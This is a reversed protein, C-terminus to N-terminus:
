ISSWNGKYGLATLIFDIILYSGFVLVLGIISAWITKKGLGSLNPNGASILLLIGGVTLGIIALPTAIMMVIFRYINGFMVFLKDLTCDQGNCPVIGEAKVITPALVIFLLCILSATLIIKKPM